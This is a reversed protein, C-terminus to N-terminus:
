YGRRGSSLTLSAIRQFSCCVGAQPPQIFHSRSRSHARAQVFLNPFCNSQATGNNFLGKWIKKQSHLWISAKGTLDKLAGVDSGKPISPNQEMFKRAIEAAWSPVKTSLLLASPWVEAGPCAEAVDWVDDGPIGIGACLSTYKEMWLTKLHAIFAGKFDAFTFPIQSCLGLAGSM